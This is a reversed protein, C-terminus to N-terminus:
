YRLVRRRRFRSILLAFGAILFLLVILGGPTTFLLHLLYGIAIARVIRRFIGPGRRRSGYGYRGRGFGRSRGFSPRGFGGFRVPQTHLTATGATSGAAAPQALAAPAVMLLAICALLTPKRTRV